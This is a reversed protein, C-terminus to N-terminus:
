WHQIRLLSLTHISFISYETGDFVNVFTNRHKQQGLLYIFQTFCAFSKYIATRLRPSISHIARVYFCVTSVNTTLKGGFKFFLVTLKQQRITNNMGMVETITFVNNHQLILYIVPEEPLRLYMPGQSIGSWPLADWHNRMMHFTTNVIHITKSVKNVASLLSLFYLTKGGDTRVM